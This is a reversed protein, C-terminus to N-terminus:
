FSSKNWLQKCITLGSPVRAKSPRTEQAGLNRMERPEKVSWLQSFLTVRGRGSPASEVASWRHGVISQDRQRYAGSRGTKSGKVLGSLSPRRWHSIHASGPLRGAGEGLWAAAALPAQLGPALLCERSWSPDTRSCRAWPLLLCAPFVSSCPQVLMQLSSFSFCHAREKSCPLWPSDEARLWVLLLAPWV